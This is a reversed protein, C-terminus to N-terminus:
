KLTDMTVLDMDKFTYNEGAMAWIFAYNSTGAGSHISWAPSIVAQENAVVLHRTEEPSGMLHFVRADPGLNFYLYAEMRRDHLHAPMTNWVSGPKLLTVGLMLQCSQVGGEHIIQHLTRENSTELAGLHLTNAEQVSVKRTPKATHALASCFYIKAPENASRSALRLDRAGMGVYLTDLLGLEYSEGDVTIVADGGINIFGIERRELFYDTKLTDAAELLLAEGAPKAGGIVMRDEHTYVMTIRGGAFLEEILFHQRLRDTDYHKFDSPHVSHRIKM